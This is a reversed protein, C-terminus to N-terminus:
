TKDEILDMPSEGPIDRYKGDLMWADLEGNVRGVFPYTTPQKFLKAATRIDVLETVKLGSRTRYKKKLNIKPM